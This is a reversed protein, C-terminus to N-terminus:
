SKANITAKLLQRYINRAVPAGDEFVLWMLHLHTPSRAAFANKGTRGVTALVQKATVIDGPKVFIEGNHAYYLLSSTAPDFVYIYKGGRLESGPRWMNEVAVVVGNRMSFVSVPKGTRDDLSDQNRDRIFIDQAPHGGHRNGDFYDYGKAIYGNGNTGGIADTTYGELPFAWLENPSDTGGKAYFYDRLKPLLKEIEARAAPKEIKGDRVM